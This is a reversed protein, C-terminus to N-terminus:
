SRASLEVTASLPHQMVSKYSENQRTRHDTLAVDASRRSSANLCLGQVTAQIM